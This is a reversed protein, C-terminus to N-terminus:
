QVSQTHTYLVFLSLDNFIHGNVGGNKVMTITQQLSFQEKRVCALQVQFTDFQELTAIYPIPLNMNMGNPQMPPQHQNSTTSEDDPENNDDDYTTTTAFSEDDTEVNDETTENDYTNSTPAMNTQDDPTYTIVEPEHKFQISKARPNPIVALCPTKRQYGLEKKPKGTPPNTANIQRVSKRAFKDRINANDLLVCTNENQDLVKKIINVTSEADAQCDSCGMFDKNYTAKLSQYAKHQNQRSTSHYPTPAKNIQVPPPLTHVTSTTM